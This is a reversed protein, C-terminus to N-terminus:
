LEERQLQMVPFNLSTMVTFGCNFIIIIKNFYYKIIESNTVLILSCHFRVKFIHVTSMFVCVLLDAPIVNVHRWRTSM